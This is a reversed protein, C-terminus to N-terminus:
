ELSSEVKYEKIIIKVTLTKIKEIYSKRDKNLNDIFLKVREEILNANAIINIEEKLNGIGDELFNIYSNVDSEKLKQIQKLLSSCNKFFYIVLYIIFLYM